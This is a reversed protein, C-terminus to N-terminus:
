MIQSMRPCIIYSNRQATKSLSLTHKTMDDSLMLYIFAVAFFVVIVQVFKKAAANQLTLKFFSKYNYVLYITFLAIEFIYFRRHFFRPVYGAYIWSVVFQILLISGIFRNRRKKAIINNIM